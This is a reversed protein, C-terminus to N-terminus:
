VGKLKTLSEKKSPLHIGCQKSYYSAGQTHEAGGGRGGGAWEHWDQKMYLWACQPKNHQIHALGQKYAKHTRM